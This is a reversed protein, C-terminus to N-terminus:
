RESRGREPKRGAAPPQPPQPRAGTPASSAPADAPQQSGDDFDVKRLQHGMSRVLFFLAVGLGVVVFFAVLGPGVHNPNDGPNVAPAPSAAARIVGPWFSSM